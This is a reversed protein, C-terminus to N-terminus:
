RAAPLEQTAVGCEKVFQRACASAAVPREDERAASSAQASGVRQLL